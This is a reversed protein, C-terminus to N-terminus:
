GLPFVQEFNLIPIGAYCCVAWVEQAFFEICVPKLVYIVLKTFVIAVYPTVTEHLLLLTSIMNDFCCSFPKFLEYIEGKLLCNVLLKSASKPKISLCM